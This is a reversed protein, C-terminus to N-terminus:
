LNVNGVIFETISAQRTTIGMLLCNFMSVRDIRPEMVATQRGGSAGVIDSASFGSRSKM